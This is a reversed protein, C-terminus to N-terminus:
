RSSSVTRRVANFAVTSMLLHGAAPAKSDRLAVDRAAFALEVCNSSASSYSSKCWAAHRFDPGTM